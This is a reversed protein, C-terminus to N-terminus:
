KILDTLPTFDYGSTEAVGENTLKGQYINVGTAITPNEKSAVEVGKNAIQTVYPMTANTLAHTATNPVAGPVNAVTYHIVGHKVYVPDDHTTAHDSTEVNGGQDIAIDVIVSGPEMSKVMKETVLTPAKRGPILVSGIVVDATKVSQAINYSDSMLTNVHGNFMQSLETLRTPNVDLITVNAHMGEAMRAAQEGVVGGGIIVVNARQTGPVGGMLIGKGGNISELYHAAIQIAYRGAIFSMPQLLPLKGNKEMTEYGIATTGSEVLAKTLPDNDALHLYTVLILDDRFFKFEEELPEKVKVVMDQAWAEEASDVLTAGAKEYEEDFLYAGAGAGRQVFVEHGAEVLNHVDGPTASVREEHNKIEKPIGIKM